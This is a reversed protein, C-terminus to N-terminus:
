PKRSIGLMKEITEISLPGVKELLGAELPEGLVQAAVTRPKGREILALWFYDDAVTYEGNWVYLWPQACQDDQWAEWMSRIIREGVESNEPRFHEHRRKIAVEQTDLVVGYVPIEGKTAGNLLDQFLRDDPPQLSTDVSTPMQSLPNMGTSSFVASQM